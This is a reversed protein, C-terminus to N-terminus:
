IYMCANPMALHIILALWGTTTRGIYTFEMNLLQKAFQHSNYYKYQMTSSTTTSTNWIYVDVSRTIILEIAVQDIQSDISKYVKHLLEKCPDKPDSFLDIILKTPPETGSGSGESKNSATIPLPTPKFGLVYDRYCHVICLFITYSLVNSPSSHLQFLFYVNM